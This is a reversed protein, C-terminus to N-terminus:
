PDARRAGPNVVAGDILTRHGHKVPTFVMPTAISARIAEFLRGSRM